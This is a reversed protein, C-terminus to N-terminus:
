LIPGIVGVTVTTVASCIVSVKGDSGVFRNAPIKSVKITNAPIAIQIDPNFAQAGEPTQTNPDDLTATIASGSANNIYLLYKAGRQVVFKDGTTATAAVPAFTTGTLAPVVVTIDAM